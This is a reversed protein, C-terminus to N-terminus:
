DAKNQTNEYQKNGKAKAIAAVTLDVAKKQYERRMIPDPCPHNGYCEANFNMWEELAELLEPAASMLRANAKVNTHKTKGHYRHNSYKGVLLVGIVIMGIAIFVGYWVELPLNMWFDWMMKEAPNKYIIIENM